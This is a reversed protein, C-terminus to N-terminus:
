FNRLDWFFVGTNSDRKIFNIAQLGTVKNFFVGVRTKEQLIQSIKSFVKKKCLVEM